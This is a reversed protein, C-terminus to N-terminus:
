RKKVPAIKGPCDEEDAIVRGNPFMTYGDKGLVLYAKTAVSYEKDPM